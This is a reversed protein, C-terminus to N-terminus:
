KTFLKEIERIAEFDRVTLKPTGGALIVAILVCISHEDLGTVDFYRAMGFATTLKLFSDRTSGRYRYQVDEIDKHASLYGKVEREVYNKIAEIQHQTM